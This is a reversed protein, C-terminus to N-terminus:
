SFSSSIPLSYLVCPLTSFEYVIRTPFRFLVSLFRPTSELLFNFNINFFCFQLNLIFIYQALYPDSAGNQSCQVPYEPEMLYHSNRSYSLLYQCRWFSEIRHLENMYGSPSIDSFYLCIRAFSIFQLPQSTSNHTTFTFHFCFNFYFLCLHSTYLCETFHTCNQKKPLAPSVESWYYTHLSSLTHL